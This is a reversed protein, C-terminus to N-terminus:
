ICHMPFTQLNDFAAHYYFWPIDGLLETNRLISAMKRGVGMKQLLTWLWGDTGVGSRSKEGGAEPWLGSSNASSWVQTPAAAPLHAPPM